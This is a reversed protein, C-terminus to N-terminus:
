FTANHCFKAGHTCGKVKLYALSQLMLRASLCSLALEREWWWVQSSTTGPHAEWFAGIVSSPWQSRTQRRNVMGTNGTDLVYNQTRYNEHVKEKFFYRRCLCLFVSLCVCVCVNNNTRKLFNKTAELECYPQPYAPSQHGQIWMGPAAKCVQHKEPCCSSSGDARIWCNGKPIHKQGWSRLLWSHHISILRWTDAKRWGVATHLRKVM